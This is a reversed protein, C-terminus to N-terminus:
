LGLEEVIQNCVVNDVYDTLVDEGNGWILWFWGTYGRTKDNRFYVRDDGSTALNSLVEDFDTVDGCNFEASDYVSISYGRSLIARVLKKAIQQEEPRAFRELCTKTENSM